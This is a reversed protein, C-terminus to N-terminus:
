GMWTGIGNWHREAYRGRLGKQYAFQLAAQMRAEGGEAFLREGIATLRHDCELWESDSKEKGEEALRNLKRDLAMIEDVEEMILIDYGSRTSEPPSQPVLVAKTEPLPQPLASQNKPKIIEIIPPVLMNILIVALLLFPSKTLYIAVGTALYLLSMPCGIAAPRWWWDRKAGVVTAVGWFFLFLPPWLPSFTISYGLVNIVLNKVDMSVAWVVAVAIGTFIFPLAALAMPIDLLRKKPKTVM